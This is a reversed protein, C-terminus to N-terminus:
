MGFMGCGLCESNKIDWMGFIGRGLGGMDQVDCM